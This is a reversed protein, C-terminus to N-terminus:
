VNKFLKSDIIKKNLIHEKRDCKCGSMVIKKDCSSRFENFNEVQYNYYLKWFDNKVLLVIGNM